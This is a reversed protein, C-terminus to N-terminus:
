ALFDANCLPGKMETSGKPTVRLTAFSADERILTVFEPQFQRSLLLATPM